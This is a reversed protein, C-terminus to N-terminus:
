LPVQMTVHRHGTPGFTEFTTDLESAWRKAIELEDDRNVDDLLITAGRIYDRMVAVLGYRGGLTSGPPGDCVVLKFRSPMQELPPDYWDFSGYSRLPKVALQIADIGLLRSHDRTYQGWQEDHELAWIETGQNQALEGLLITTIGSGCELIPGPDNLFSAICDHIYDGSAAWGDAGWGYLLDDYNNRDLPANRFSKFATMLTRRQRFSKLTNLISRASKKAINM